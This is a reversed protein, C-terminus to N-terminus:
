NRAPCSLLRVHQRTLQQAADIIQSKGLVDLRAASHVARPTFEFAMAPVNKNSRALFVFYLDILAEQGDLLHFHQEQIRATVYPRHVAISEAVKWTPFQKKMSEANPNPRHDYEQWVGMPGGPDSRGVTGASFVTESNREVSYHFDANGDRSYKLEDGSQLASSLSDGVFLSFSAFDHTLGRQRLARALAVRQEKMYAAFDEKPPAKEAAERLAEKHAESYVAHFANMDALRANEDMKHRQPQDSFARIPFSRAWGDTPFLTLWGSGLEFRPNPGALGVVNNFTPGSSGQGIWRRPSVGSDQVAFQYNFTHAPDIM